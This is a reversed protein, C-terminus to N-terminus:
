RASVATGASRQRYADSVAESRKWRGQGLRAAAAIRVYGETWGRRIKWFFRTQCLRVEFMEAAQHPARQVPIGEGVFGRQAFDSADHPPVGACADPLREGIVDDLLGQDGNVPRALGIIRTSWEAGPEYGDGVAAHDVGFSTLPAARHVFFAKDFMSFASNVVAAFTCDAEELRQATQRRSLAADDLQELDLALTRPLHRPREPQRHRVYLNEGM